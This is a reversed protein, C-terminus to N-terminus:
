RRGQLEVMGAEVVKGPELVIKMGQIATKLENIAAVIKKEGESEQAQAGSESGGMAGLAMGATALATLGFIVPLALTGMTAILSLGAGIALLAAGVELLGGVQSILTGFLQPMTAATQLLTKFGESALKIGQGVMMIGAGMLLLAGGVILLGIASAEGIKSLAFLGIGFLVLVGVLTLLEAPSLGKLSKALEAIGLAALAVGAGVMLAAAGFALMSTAAGAAATGSRATAASNANQAGTNTGLTGTNMGTLTTNLKKLTNLTGYQIAAGALSVVLSGIAGANEMIKNGILQLKSPQEDLAVGMEKALETQEGQGKIMKAMDAVSVGMAEALKKKQLYNMQNFEAESGLNKLLEQQVTLFDGQLAAERAQDLNIQRGLLVSAEMQSNISNEFDLLKDAASVIQNFEVGMKQSNIVAKQLNVINKTGALAVADMNKAMEKTVTAAPVGAAKALGSAFKASNVAAEKTMGPLKSLNGIAKGAEEASGGFLTAMEAADKGMAAANALTGGTEMIASEAARIDKAAILFGTSLSQGFTRFTKDAAQGVSLGEAKATKYAESFADGLKNALGILVLTRAAGGELFDKILKTNVGIKELAQNRQEEIEKIKQQVRLEEKQKKELDIQNKLQKERQKTAKEIFESQKKLGTVDKEMKDKKQLLQTARSYNGNLSETQALAALQAINAEKQKILIDNEKKALDAMVKLEAERIDLGQQTVLNKVRENVKLAEQSKVFDTMQGQLDQLFNGATFGKKAGKKIGEAIASAIQAALDQPIFDDAQPKQKAM